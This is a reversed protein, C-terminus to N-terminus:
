RGMPSGLLSCRYIRGDIMIRKPNKHNFQYSFTHRNLTINEIETIMEENGDFISVLLKSPNVARVIGIRHNNNYAPKM